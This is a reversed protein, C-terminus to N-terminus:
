SLTNIDQNFETPANSSTFESVDFESESSIPPSFIKKPITSRQYFISPAQLATLYIGEYPLELDPGERFKYLQVTFTQKNPVTMVGSSLMYGHAILAPSATM